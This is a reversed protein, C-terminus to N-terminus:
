LAVVFVFPLEGASAGIISKPKTQKKLKMKYCILVQLNNLALVQKYM